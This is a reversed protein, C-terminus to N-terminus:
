ALPRGARLREVDGLPGGSATARACARSPPPWSGTSAARRPPRPDSTTSPPRPSVAEALLVDSPRGGGADLRHRLSRRLRRLGVADAGGLPSTLADVVVDPDLEGAGALVDLAAALLALFPRVAVEDRVPLDAVATDLPVGASRLSRRLTATRSGGRVLVAM